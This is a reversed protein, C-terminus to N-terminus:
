KRSGSSMGGKTSAKASCTVAIAVVPDKAPVFGVFSAIYKDLSYRGTKPDTKQATATKGAVQFGDISAEVGTADGETVGVLMEAITRTVHKPVVRRRVRPAGERILEGNANTVKRVLLPEMLSGGNAMAAVAMALQLNTVSIGQGFSAAATEV